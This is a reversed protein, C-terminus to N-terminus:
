SSREWCAPQYYDMDSADVEERRPCFSINVAATEGRLGIFEGVDADATVCQRLTEHESLFFWILM